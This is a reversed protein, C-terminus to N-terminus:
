KSNLLHIQMFDITQKIIEKSTPTDDLVDFDHQGEAYNIFTFPINLKIIESVFYDTTEKVIQFEDKGARVIFLPIEKPIKKIERLDARYCGYEKAASDIKNFYKQDPTLLIGYYFIACKIMYSSEQMLSLATLTNASCGFIAMRNLDINYTEANKQLYRILTDTEFHSKETEYTVAIMGSAAILESWSVVYGLDKHNVGLDNNTVSDPHGNILIVIPLRKNKNIHPPTYLDLKLKIGEGSHYIIGKHKIVNKMDPIHYVLRKEAFPINQIKNTDLNNTMQDSPKSRRESCSLIIIAITFLLSIRNASKTKM